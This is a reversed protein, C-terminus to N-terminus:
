RARPPPPPPARLTKPPWVSSLLLILRRWCLIFPTICVFQVWYGQQWHSPPILINGFRMPSDVRSIKNHCLSLRGVYLSFRGWVEKTSWSSGAHEVVSSLETLAERNTLELSCSSVYMLRPKLTERSLHWHILISM